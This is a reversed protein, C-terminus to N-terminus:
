NAVHIQYVEAMMLKWSNWFFVNPLHHFINERYGIVWLQKGKALAYGFEVHRGGRPNYRTFFQTSERSSAPPETFQIMVDARDIDELDHQAAIHDPISQKIAEGRDNLSEGEHLWRSTVEIGMDQLERAYEIMEAQRAFPAALYVKPILNLGSTTSDLKM